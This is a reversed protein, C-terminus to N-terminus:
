IKGARFQQAVMLRGKPVLTPGLQRLQALTLGAVVFPENDQNGVAVYVDLGDLHELGLRQLQHFLLPRVEILNNFKATRGLYEQVVKVNAADVSRHEDVINGRLHNAKGMAHILEHGIINLCIRLPQDGAPTQMRPMRGVYHRVHLLNQPQADPHDLNM